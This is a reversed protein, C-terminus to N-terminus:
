ERFPELYRENATLLFGRQGTEADKISSLLANLSSITERQALINAHSKIAAIGVFYIVAFSSAIVAAALLSALPLIPRCPRSGLRQRFIRERDEASLPPVFHDRRRHIVTRTRM